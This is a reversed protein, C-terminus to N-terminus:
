NTSKKTRAVVYWVLCDVFVLICIVKWALLWEGGADLFSVPYYAEVFDSLGFLVFNTALVKWFQKPVNTAMALPSLSVGACCLWFVGELLNFEVFSTM